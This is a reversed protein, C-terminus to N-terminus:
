APSWQSVLNTVFENRILPNNRGDLGSEMSVIACTIGHGLGFDNNRGDLGSEMSVVAAALANEFSQGITGAM